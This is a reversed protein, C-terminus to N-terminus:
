MVKNMLGGLGSSISANGGFIAQTLKPVTALSIFFGIFVAGVGIWNAEWMAISYDGNFTRQMFTTLFGSWVFIYAGAVARIMAFSLLTQAFSFFMGRLSPVMLLPIFIPGFLAAVAYMIFSTCNLFFLIGSGLAMLLEVLWYCIQEMPAFISPAPTNQGADSLLQTLTNLSNQDFATVIVQAIYSFLHTLGFSAGPLPNTWYTELLSCILLKVFFRMLDGVHLPHHHGGITMGRFNWEMVVGVLMITAIFSLEATGLSTLVDSHQTTLDTLNNTFQYLWNITDNTTSGNLTQALLAPNM